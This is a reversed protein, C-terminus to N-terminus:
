AKPATKLRWIEFLRSLEKVPEERKDVRLDLYPHPAEKSIRVVASEWHAGDGGKEEAAALAAVLRGALDSRTEEFARACAKIVEEGSLGCGAVAYNEGQQSGCHPTMESGTFVASKGTVDLALIQRHQKLPDGTMVREIVEDAPVNERLLKMGAIGFFPSTYGQVAVAGSNAGTFPVNKGVSLASSVVGVGFEGAKLDAAVITCITEQLKLASIGKTGRGITRM